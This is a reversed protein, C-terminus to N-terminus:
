RLTASRTASGDRWTLRSGRLRLSGTAIRPGSDLLARGRADDRNVELESVHESIVSRASATWAISGDRKLVVREVADFSEPGSPRTVAGDDRLQKGDSLRRVVVAASVTDVGYSSLGYAAVRGALAVPGARSQRPSRSSSGLLYSRPAGQACGFVQGGREYIRAVADAVLTKASSPGCRRAARTSAARSSAAHTSATGSSVRNTSAARSSGCAVIMM